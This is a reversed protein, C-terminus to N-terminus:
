KTLSSTSGLIRNDSLSELPEDAKALLVVLLVCFISKLYYM